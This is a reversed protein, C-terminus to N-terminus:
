YLRVTVLWSQQKRPHKEKPIKCTHMIHTVRIHTVANGEVLVGDLDSGTFDKATSCSRTNPYKNVAWKHPHCGQSGAAHDQALGLGM